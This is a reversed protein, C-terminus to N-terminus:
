KQWDSMIWHIRMALYGHLSNIATNVDNYRVAQNYIRVYHKKLSDMGPQANLSVSILSCYSLILIKRM